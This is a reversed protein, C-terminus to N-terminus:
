KKTEASAESTNVESVVPEGIEEPEVRTLESKMRKRIEKAAKERIHYLKSRRTKSRGLIKVKDIMPSFLPFIREVGVGDVVKRVTFTSGAETGHKVSLVLGDFAQIRTREKKETKWKGETVMKETVKQSVRVTDGARVGLKKREDINVTTFKIKTEAM